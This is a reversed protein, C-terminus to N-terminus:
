EFVVKAKGSFEVPIRQMRLVVEVGRTEADVSMEIRRIMGMLQGTAANTVRTGEVTGDSVLKINMLMEAPMQIEEPMQIEKQETM